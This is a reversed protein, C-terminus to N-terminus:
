HVCTRPHVVRGLWHFRKAGGLSVLSQYIYSVTPVTNSPLLSEIFAQLPGTQLAGRYHHTRGSALALVTPVRTVGCRNTVRPHLMGHVSGMGM